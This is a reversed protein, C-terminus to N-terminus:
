QWYQESINAKKKEALLESGRSQPFKWPQVMELTTILPEFKAGDEFMKKLRAQVFPVHPEPVFLWPRVRWSPFATGFKSNTAIASPIQDWHDHWSQFREILPYPNQQISVECLFITKVQFAIALADCSWHRKPLM